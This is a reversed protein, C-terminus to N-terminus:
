PSSPSPARCTSPSPAALGRRQYRDRQDLRQQDRHGGRRQLRHADDAPRDAPEDIRPDPAPLVGSPVLSHATGTALAANLTIALGSVARDRTTALRIQQAGFTGTGVVIAYYTQGDTLGGIPTSGGSSYISPTAPRSPPARVSYPLTITSGSVDKAPIFRPSADKTPQASNTPVLRQSVGMLANPLSLAIPPGRATLSLTFRTPSLM